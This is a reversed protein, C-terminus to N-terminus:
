HSTLLPYAKAYRLYEVCYRGSSASASDLCLPKHGPVNMSGQLHLRPMRRGQSQLSDSPDSASPQGFVGRAGLSRNFRIFQDFGVAARSSRHSAPGKSMSKFKRVGGTRGVTRGQGERWCRETMGATKLPFGTSPGLIGPVRGARGGAPQPPDRANQDFRNGPAEFPLIESRRCPFSVPLPFKAGRRKKRGKRMKGKGRM